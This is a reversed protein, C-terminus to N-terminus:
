ENTAEEAERAAEEAETAAEEAADEAANEVGRAIDEIEDELTVFWDAIQGVKDELGTVALSATVRSGDQAVITAVTLGENEGRIRLQEMEGELYAAYTEADDSSPFTYLLQAELADASKLDIGFAFQSPTVPPPTVVHAGSVEPEETIELPVGPTVDLSVDGPEEGSESARRADRENRERAKQFVIEMANAGAGGATSQVVGFFDWDGQPVEASWAHEVNGRDLRDLSAVLAAYSNSLVFTGDVFTAWGNPGMPLMKHDGHHRIESQAEEEIAWQILSRIPRVFSRFNVAAVFAFEDEETPNGLAALEDDDRPEISITLDKPLFMNFGAPSDNSGQMDVIWRLNEPLDQRQAERGAENLTRLFHTLFEQTGTDEAVDRLKMVAVGDPSVVATTEHQTGPRTAWMGVVVAFVGFTLVLLGCGLGCGILLKDCGTRGGATKSPGGPNPPLPSYSAETM